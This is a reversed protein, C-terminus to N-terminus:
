LGRRELFDRADEPEFDDTLFFFGEPKDPWEYLDYADSLIGDGSIWDPHERWIRDFEELTDEVTVLHAGTEQDYFRNEVSNGGGTWGVFRFGKPRLEEKRSEIYATREEDLRVIEKLWEVIKSEM